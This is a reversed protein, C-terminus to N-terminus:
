ACRRENAAPAVRQRLPEIPTPGPKATRRGPGPESTIVLVAGIIVAAAVLVRATIPESAIAWGLFVAIVPNVYAYTATKSLPANQLLWVYASLAVVSGFGALYLLAAISAASVETVAFSAAEGSVVGLGLLLTGAVLMKMATALFVSNGNSTHRSLVSGIAWSLSAFLLVAAGLPHIAGGIGILEAPGVLVAIGGFGVLLGAITRPSPRSGRPALWDLLVVWMPVTAVVLAALSSPVLQESWAVGAQGFVLMLVAIGLSDLWQRGSPAAAGRLRLTGYLVAGALVFRAGTMMFPPITEIAFKIALYTSGWVLYVATFALVGPLSRSRDLGPPVAAM